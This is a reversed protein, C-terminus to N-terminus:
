QIFPLPPAPATASAPDPVRLTDAVTAGLWVEPVVGIISMVACINMNNTFTRCTCLADYTHWQAHMIIAISLIAQLEFKITLMKAAAVHKSIGQPSTAVVGM